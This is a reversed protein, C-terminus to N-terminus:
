YLDKKTMRPTPTNRLHETLALSHHQYGVAYCHSAADDFLSRAKARAEPQGETLLDIATLFDDYPNNPGTQFNALPNM